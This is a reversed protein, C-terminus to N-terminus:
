GPQNQQQQYLITYEKELNAFKTQLQVLLRNKEGLEEEVERLKTRLEEMKQADDASFPEVKQAEASAAARTAGPADATQERLEGHTQDAEARDKLTSQYLVRYKKLRLLLFVVGSTLICALEILLLLYLADIKIM